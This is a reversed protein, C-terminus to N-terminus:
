ASWSSWMVGPARSSATSKTSEWKAFDLQACWHPSAGNEVFIRSVLKWFGAAEAADMLALMAVRGIGQVRLRRAAYVSFEAVGAYCERPRYTSTSAFAVVQGGQEVVVTPHRGDCWALIDQATRPRTEFTAVRDEIGENYIAAIAPADEPTAPRTLLEAM